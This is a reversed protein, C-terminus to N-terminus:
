ETLEELMVKLMHHNEYDELGDLTLYLTDLGDENEDFKIHLYEAIKSPKDLRDALKDADELNYNVETLIFMAFGAVNNRLKQATNWYATAMGKPVDSDTVREKNHNPEWIANIEELKM